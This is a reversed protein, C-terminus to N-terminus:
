GGVSVEQDISLERRLRRPSTLVQLRRRRDGGCAASLTTQAWCPVWWAAALARVTPTSADDRLLSTLIRLQDLWWRRTAMNQSTATAATHSRASLPHPVFCVTARLMLKLWLDLDVLQYIDPRLGGTELALTRRFMVCTPEGIPNDAAGSRILIQKVLSTGRNRDRLRLRKLQDTGYRRAWEPDDSEVRRPAFAMGVDPDDFCVALTSLAGPLLWDDAHVFQVSRGRALRLCANHNEALGLRAANRVLRDGPRLLSRAINASDDTGDDLVVVEFEVGEQDLVSRLCREITDAHNYVPVCVTVTPAESM